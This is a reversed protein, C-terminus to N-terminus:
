SAKETSYLYRFMYQDSSTLHIYDVFSYSMQVYRTYSQDVKSLVREVLSLIYIIEPEM